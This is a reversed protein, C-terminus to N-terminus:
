TLTRVETTKAITTTRKLKSQEDDVAQLEKVAATQSRTKELEEGDL